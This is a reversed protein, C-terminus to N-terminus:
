SLVRAWLVKLYRGEPYTSLYPHDWGPGSTELIQLRRGLRQATHIILQEFDAASLLGSCSCTVLLGDRRVCQMGLANLDRYKKLGEERAEGDRSMVLKPPDLLVVDFQRGNRIMQRAYTFADAHVFDIRLPGRRSNINANRRAMAIADEDLDVATVEGAGGLLKAYISFGGTYCCLDLLSKGRVLQALKYRNERQDCFFGTKHGREFDVEFNVGHELIRVRRVPECAPATAPDIGEMRAIEPDVQVVHRKTGCIEHLLPLWKGLRQWVGLVSVEVSLVDGYRDVILGGLEDSDGHVLRCATTDEPLWERRRMVARRLASLLDEESLPAAGHHLMRLPTRSTPNWFGSGFFEGNKDYVQVLSGPRADLSVAGLMRPYVAPHYTFYRLQVWPKQWAASGVPPSSKKSSHAAAPMRKPVSRREGEKKGTQVRSDYRSSPASDIGRKRTSVAIKVPVSRPFQM